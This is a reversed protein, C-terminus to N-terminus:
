SIFKMLFSPGYFKDNLLMNSIVTSKGTQRPSLLLLCSGKGKQGVGVEPLYSHHPKPKDDDEEKIPLVKPPAEM